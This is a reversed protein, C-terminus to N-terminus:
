RTEILKDRHGQIVKDIDVQGPVRPVQDRAASPSERYDRTAKSVTSAAAVKRPLCPVQHSETYDRTAKSVTSAMAAKRPLRPLQHSETTEPRRPRRQRRLKKAHCARHDRTAKSATSAAAAKRPLRPVQHSQLRPVQHSETTEPRRPRWPRRPRKAHCARRCFNWARVLIRLICAELTRPYIRIAKLTEPNWIGPDIAGLHWPELIQHCILWGTVSLPCGCTKNHNRSPNRCLIIYPFEQSSNRCPRSALCEQM